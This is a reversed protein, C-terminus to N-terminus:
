IAKWGSHLMESSSWAEEEDDEEEETLLNQQITEWTWITETEEDHQIWKKRLM